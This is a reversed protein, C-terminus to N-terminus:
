DKKTKAPWVLRLAGDADQFEKSYGYFSYRSYQWPTIADNERWDSYHIPNDEGYKEVSCYRITNISFSESDMVLNNGNSRYELGKGHIELIASPKYPIQRGIKRTELYCSERPRSVDMVTYGTTNSILALVLNRDNDHGAVVIDDMGDNNFDGRVAYPLSKESYHYQELEEPSYDALTWIKFDKNYATLAEKMAPALALADTYEPKFPSPQESGMKSPSIGKFGEEYWFITDASELTLYSARLPNEIFPELLAIGDHTLSTEEGETDGSLTFKVDHRFLHLVYMVQPGTPNYIRIPLVYYDTGRPMLALLANTNKIHGAIAFCTKGKGDFDGKIIYPLERKNFPYHMIGQPYDTLTYMKFDPNYDRIAQEQQKNLQLAALYEQKMEHDSPEPWADGSGEGGPLAVPVTTSVVASNASVSPAAENGQASVFASLLLIASLLCLLNINSKATDM